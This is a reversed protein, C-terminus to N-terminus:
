FGYRWSAAITSDRELQIGEYNEYMPQLWEISVDNGALNVTLGLGLDMFRGGQNAPFDMPSSRSNYVTFDDQLKGKRSWVTRLSGSLWTNLAHGLWGSVEVVDGLRYGSSNKEELRKIGGLQMGWQWSQATGSWTLGPLLDWTGSGTQMDFHKLGGDAKFSREYELDVKGTPISVGLNFHLSQTASEHLSILAAAVTDGLDASVHSSMSGHEHVGPIPAPRGALARTQMDMSMFQPMLMVTVSDTPAYMLDLMHMTMTMRSPAYRCLVEASCANQVVNTDAVSRTGRMLAGAQRAHTVRYGAMFTGAATLRHAFMVGAPAQHDASHTHQNHEANGSHGLAVDRQERRRTAQLDVQLSINAMVYDLDAFKSDDDGGAYLGSARQYYELGAEVSFGRAFSKRVGLGASLSGFAALRPDSSFNAPLQAASFNVFQPQLDLVNADVPNNASDFFDGNTTRFYRMQQTSQSVWIERGANDKETSRYSQRSVLYPQYFDASSQTYYRVRPTFTWDGFPQVWEVEVAHTDIKWDDSSFQYDLHLAANMTEIHRVYHAGLATQERQDPRQELLARVDGNVVQQTPSVFADAGIFIVTTAKYPNEMFGRSNTYGVNFDILSEADIVQILGLNATRDSRKGTLRESDQERQLQATYANRNLYPLLDRSLLADTRSNTYGVGFNVTTLKQNFDLRAGVNGYRSFYDDEDSLGVGINVASERGSFELTSDVQQRIEPSASSMILVNRTDKELTGSAALKVPNLQRDLLVQGNVYPSAGSTILRGGSNRLIARNGGALLPATAVPSAGSWSDQTLSLSFNYNDLFRLNGRTHLTDVSIPKLRSEVDVLDREGEEYHSYQLSLSDSTAEAANAHPLLLGPLVLAATTLAQLTRSLGVSQPPEKRGDTVAVGVAEAQLM